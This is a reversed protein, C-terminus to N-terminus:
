SVVLTASFVKRVRVCARANTIPLLVALLSEVILPEKRGKVQISNQLEKAAQAACPYFNLLTDSVLGRVIRRDLTKTARYAALVRNENTDDDANQFVYLANPSVFTCKSSVFIPVVDGEEKNEEEEINLQQKQKTKEEDEEEDQGYLLTSTM